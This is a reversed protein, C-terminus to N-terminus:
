KYLNNRGAKAASPPPPPPDAGKARRECLMLWVSKSFVIVSDPDTHLTALKLWYFLRLHRRRLIASKLWYNSATPAQATDGEQSSWRGTRPSVRSSAPLTPPRRTRRTLWWSTARRWQRFYYFTWASLTPFSPSASPFFRWIPSIRRNLEKCIHAGITSFLTTSGAGYENPQGPYPDPDLLM